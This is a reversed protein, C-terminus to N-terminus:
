IRSVTTHKVGILELFYGSLLSTNRNIRDLALRVSFETGSSNFRGSSSTMFLLHLKHEYDSGSGSYEDDVCSSFAITCLFLLIQLPRAMATFVQFHDVRALRAVYTAPKDPQQALGPSARALISKSGTM